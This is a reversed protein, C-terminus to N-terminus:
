YTLASITNGSIRRVTFLRRHVNRITSGNWQKQYSPASCPCCSRYMSYGIKLVVEPTQLMVSRSKGYISVGKSKEQLACQERPMQKEDTPNYSRRARVLRWLEAYDQGMRREAYNWIRTESSSRGNEQETDYFLEEIM